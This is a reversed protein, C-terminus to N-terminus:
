RCWKPTKQCTTVDPNGLSIFPKMLETQEDVDLVIRWSVGLKPTNKRGLAPKREIRMLMFWNANPLQSCGTSDRLISLCVGEVSSEAVPGIRKWAEAPLEQFSPAM